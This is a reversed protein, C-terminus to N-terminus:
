HKLIKMTEFFVDGINEHDSATTTIGSVYPQVLYRLTLFGIFYSPADDIMLRQAKVYTDHETTPDSAAAAEDLLKDFEPNCYHSNSNGAGCAFLDRLQNDPHPFDANWGNRTIDYVNGARREEKFVAFDTCAIDLQGESFGLNTRWAGALYTVRPTHGADCNFGFKLKGIDLVDVKGDPTGSAGTTDKIGLETIATALSEKAKAPDFPYPEYDDPWGPIGPMVTGVGPQVMGAYAIDILEKRDVAQTLAIRMNKNAMPSKGDATTKSPPCKQANEQCTAFDYYTVGLQPTDKIQEKLNPDEAVRVISTSPVKVADLGGQEYNAVAAEPDGGIALSIKTLTPKTEGYWNPNPVLVIESNHTWSEMMYPGSAVIDSAEAWSTESEPVPSTLWMAMVNIFYNVRHSLTVVLTKPDPATVGLKDLLSDILANDKVDPTTGKCGYDAGMVADAGAVPCMEYGYAFGNRPDALARMNRVIDGAVIPEGNSYKADRLKFTYTLGDASLEPLAEALEPVLNLDKDYYLLPRQISSLIAIETSDYAQAPRFSGPDTAAFYLRLEQSEALEGGEAASPSAGPETSTGPAQSAPAQTAQSGGCATAIIALVGVLALLRKQLM